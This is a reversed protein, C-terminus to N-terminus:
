SRLYGCGVLKGDEFEFIVCSRADELPVGQPVEIITTVADSTEDVVFDIGRRQFLDELIEQDTM